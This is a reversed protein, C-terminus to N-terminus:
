ITASTTRVAKSGPLAGGGIVSFAGEILRPPRLRVGSM